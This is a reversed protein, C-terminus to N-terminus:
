KSKERSSEGILPDRVSLIVCGREEKVEEEEGQWEGPALNSWASGLASFIVCEIAAISSASHFLKKPFLWWQLWSLSDCSFHLQGTPGAFLFFLSHFIVREQAEEGDGDEEENEEQEVQVQGEEEGGDDDDEFLSFIVGVPEDQLWSFHDM